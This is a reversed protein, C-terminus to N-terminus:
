SRACAPCLMDSLRGEPVFGPSDALEIGGSLRWRVPCRQVQIASVTPKVAYQAEALRMRVPPCSTLNGVNTVGAFLAPQRAEIWQALGAFGFGNLASVVQM